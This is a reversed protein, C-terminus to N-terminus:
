GRSIRDTRGRSVEVGERALNATSVTARALVTKATHGDMSFATEGLTVIVILLAASLDLGETSKLPKQCRCLSVAYAQCVPNRDQQSPLM